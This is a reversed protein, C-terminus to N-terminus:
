EDDDLWNTSIAFQNKLELKIAKLCRTIHGKPHGFALGIQELRWGANERLALIALYKWKTQEENAYHDQITQWFQDLGERPLVVKFGEQDAVSM